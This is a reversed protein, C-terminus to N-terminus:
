PTGEAEAAVSIPHTHDDPGGPGTVGAGVEVVHTHGDLGGPATLASGAPILHTHNDTADDSADAFGEAGDGRRGLPVTAVHRDGVNIAVEGVAALPGGLPHLLEPPIEALAARDAGSLEGRVYGLTIHPRYERFQPATVHPALTRLLRGHLAEIEHSGVPVLIPV